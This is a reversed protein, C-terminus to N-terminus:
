SYLFEELAFLSGQAMGCVNGENRQPYIGLLEQLSVTKGDAERSCVLHLPNNSKEVKTEAQTDGDLTIANNVIDQINERSLWVAAEVEEPCLNPQQKEALVASLYVVVHHARIAVGEEPITPYVSEWASQLKWDERPISLGTEELMERSMAAELSEGPDVSGGPFVWAGPFSRMYSPRRTILLREETPDMVMGVVALGAFAKNDDNSATAM